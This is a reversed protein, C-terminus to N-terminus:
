IERHSVNCLAVLLLVKFDILLNDPKIDRHAIHHSHMHALGSVLNKFARRATSEGMVRGTMSHVFRNTQPNYRMIPGGEVHELVMYFYECEEDSIIEILRVLNKHALLKM